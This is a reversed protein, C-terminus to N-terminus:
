LDSSEKADKGARQRYRLRSVREREDNLERDNTAQEVFRIHKQVADRAAKPNSAIVADYIARHQSLLMDAVGPYSYILGRNYFVGDKLLQYCSRLTHLLVINHAAEGIANHFEVDLQASQELDKATNAAEMASLIETLLAKDASTARLAAYEAAISEIERRYELYDTTAKRHEAFLKAVPASFVVGIVDAVFTGGGHRSTLLGANELRKLADRLIPRSIDLQRALEREGPLRDGGRLVGELILSEIQHVVDDATRSAQIRSFVTEAM